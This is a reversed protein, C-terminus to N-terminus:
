CLNGIPTEQALGLMIRNSLATMVSIRISRNRLVRNKPLFWSLFDGSTIVFLLTLTGFTGIHLTEKLDSQAGKM